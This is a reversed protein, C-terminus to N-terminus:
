ADKVQCDHPRLAAHADHIAADLGGFVQSSVEYVNGAGIIQLVGTRDLLDRDAPSVGVLIMRRDSELLRLAAQGLLATITMDLGMARRLRLIVLQADQDLYADELAAQMESAAGFFVQGDIQLIRMAACSVSQDECEALTKDKTWDLRQVRLQRARRLYFFLSLGVGLYIAKDLPMVWTGIVTASFALADSRRSVLIARIKKRDVLDVAVILLLGALASIPTFDVVPGLFLLSAGVLLGSAVGALRTQAGSQENLASRSLSGSTPYAGSVGAALNALGQGIFESSLELKQGTKAALARAVASSEVLSLVTAAIAIPVLAAWGDLSPMSLPPLGAPISALDAVRRLGMGGLDFIWSAATALTLAILAGPLARNIKRILVIVLATAAGVLVPLYNADGLHSGWASLKDIITGSGGPTETLNPLQGIGILVGAGTIYGVVVPTSIYDVLVGLRLVGASLQIVGVMLALLMATSVPDVDAAGAVATGVLLSLANTPGTVVHRSSRVLGGIITPLFAAYLGMAPPLGAIMAYAIGQPVSMFTVTLAAPLDQRIDSLTATRLDAVPLKDVLSM